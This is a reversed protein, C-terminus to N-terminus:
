QPVERWSIRKGLVSSSSINLGYPIKDGKATTTIAKLLGSPLRVVVSGVVLSGPVKVGAAQNPATPISTGDKYNLQYMWSYGNVSCVDAITSNVVNSSVVLTGLVLTADISVREGNDPLDVYWGSNTAWNVPNSSMKRVGATDTLTQKVMPKASYTRLNDLAGSAAGENGAYPDAIAYISQVQTNSLDDFSLYQGTTVFLLPSNSNPRAGLEIRTTVPQVQGAANKLTTIRKVANTDTPELSLNFRWVNGLLDGAYAISSLGDNYFTPGVTSLKGLGAPNAVTGTNTAWTKLVAGTLPDLAFLYGKGDGGTGNVASPQTEATPTNNYGSTVLVVWKGALTTGAPMRTIVPNGFSMGMNAVANNCLTSAHCTEWLAKPATPDTVDLGFFGRGGKRYGGVLLTKWKKATEDYIDMSTASGDVYYRHSYGEDALRWMEPMVTRPVYGFLETGTAGDLAHLMGDNAGIYLVRSRNAVRTKFDAYSEADAGLTYNFQYLPKGIFLPVSNVTDGLRNVRLSRFINLYGFTDTGATFAEPTNQGRLFNVVNEGSDAFPKRAATLTGDGCQAFSNSTCRGSFWAREAVSLSAFDFTKAKNDGTATTDFTFLTRANPNTVLADAQANLNTSAKWRVGAKVEGTQLDIEQSLIEGDWYNNQFTTSYIYNDNQTINPASTASAAAAGTTTVVDSLAERLGDAAEKPSKASYYRGRGNVAAHWLDDVATATNGVPIPWNCIRTGEWYCGNLGSIIKQFYGTSSTDYDKKYTMYGDIGLGMTYTNMHQATNADRRSIPVDNKMAPRLDTMYYYQAIDALTGGVNNGDLVGSERNVFPGPTSDYSGSLTNNNIDRGLGGNWYGDTMMITYNKQCSYQIPDPTGSIKGAYYRGVHSLASLLPTSYTGNEGYLQNYWSTRHARQGVESNFEKVGLLDGTKNISMYGVRYKGSLRSFALGSATKAMQQRTQYYAFWNAFNTMEEAYTCSTGACDVRKDYKPYTQGAVINVRTWPARDKLYAPTYNAAADNVGNRTTGSNVSSATNGNISFTAGGLTGVTAIGCTSGSITSGSAPTSVNVSCTASTNASNNKTFTIVKSSGSNVMSVFTYGSIFTPNTAPVGAATTGCASGNLVDVGDLIVSSVCNAPASSTYGRAGNRVNISYRTETNVAQTSNISIPIGNWATGNVKARITVTGASATATFDPSNNTIAAALATAVSTTTSGSGVSLPSSLMEVNNVKLSTITGSAVATNVRLTATARAGVIAPTNSAQIPTGMYNPYTYSKVASDSYAGQCDTGGATTCYRVRSPIVYDNVPVASVMCQTREEDRCHEWVGIQYYHPAATASRANQKPKPNAYQDWIEPLNYNTDHACNGYRDCYYSSPWQMISEKHGYLVYYGDKPVQTWNSTNAATMSPKSTLDANIPPTYSVEPNYYMLNIQSNYMPPDPYRCRGLFGASNLSDGGGYCLNARIVWDPSYDWQMSGSDDFVLMINPKINDPNGSTLPTDALPTDGHAMGLILAASLTAITAFIKKTRQM